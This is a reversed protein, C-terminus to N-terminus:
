NFLIILFIFSRFNCRVRVIVITTTTLWSEKNANVPLACDGALGRLHIMTKPACASSTSSFAPPVRALYTAMPYSPTYTQAILLRSPQLRSLVGQYSLPGFKEMELEGYLYRTPASSVLWILSSSAFCAAATYGAM